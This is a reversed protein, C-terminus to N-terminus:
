NKHKPMLWKGKPQTPKTRRNGILRSTPDLLPLTTGVRNLRMLRRPATSHKLDVQPDMRPFRQRHLFTAHKM